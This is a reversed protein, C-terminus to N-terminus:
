GHRYNNFPVSYPQQREGLSRVARRSAMSIARKIVDLNNNGVGAVYAVAGCRRTKMDRYRDRVCRATGARDDYAV